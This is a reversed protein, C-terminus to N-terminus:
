SETRKLMRDIYFRTFGIIFVSGFLFSLISFSVNQSILLVQYVVLQVWLLQEILQSVAKERTKKGVPYLDLWLQAKFHSFLTMLQIGVIYLFAVTLAAIMWVNSAYALVFLSLIIVRTYIGFYDGARVFAIRYLYVYAADQKFPVRKKLLQVIIKRKKVHSKLHPVETFLSALAYFRQMRKQDKDILLDMALPKHYTLHYNYFFLAFLSVLFVVVMLQYGNIMSYFLALQFGFRLAQNLFRILPQRQRLMWWGALFHWGKMLIFIGVLLTYSLSYDGVDYLPALVSALIAVLYLQIVFSYILTYNFYPALAKEKPLLFILDPEKLLNQVPNHLAVLSFLVSVVFAIPFDEPIQTLLQQYYVAGAAILFLLAIAIHGNLIYQLYRIMEKVHTRFRSKFLTRSSFM